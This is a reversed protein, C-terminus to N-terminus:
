NAKSQNCRSAYAVACATIIIGYIIIVIPYTQSTAHQSISSRLDGACIPFASPQSTAMPHLWSHLMGSNPTKCAATFFATARTHRAWLRLPTHKGTSMVLWDHVNCLPHHLICLLATCFVSCAHFML